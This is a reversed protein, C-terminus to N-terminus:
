EKREAKLEKPWYEKKVLKKFDETTIDGYKLFRKLVCVPYFKIYDKKM